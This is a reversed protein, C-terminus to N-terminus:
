PAYISSLTALKSSKRINFLEWMELIFEVQDDPHKWKYISIEIPKFM